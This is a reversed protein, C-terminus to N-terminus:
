VAQVSVKWQSPVNATRYIAIFRIEFFKWFAYLCRLSVVPLSLKAEIQKQVLRRRWTQHANLVLKFRGFDNKSGFRTPKVCLHITISTVVIKYLLQAVSALSVNTSQAYYIITRFDPSEM